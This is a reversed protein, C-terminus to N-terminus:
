KVVSLYMINKTQLKRRINTFSCGSITGFQGGLENRGLFQM